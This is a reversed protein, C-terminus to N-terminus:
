GGELTDTIDVDDVHDVGRARAEAVLKRAKGVPLLARDRLIPDIWAAHVADRPDAVLFLLMLQAVESERTVDSRLAREIVGRIWGELDGIPAIHQAFHERLYSGMRGVFDSQSKKAFWEIQEAHIRLM